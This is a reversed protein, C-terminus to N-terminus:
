EPSWSTTSTCTSWVLSTHGPPGPFSTQKSAIGLLSAAPWLACVPGSGRRPDPPGLSHSHVLPIGAETQRQHRRRAPGPAAWPHQPQKRTVTPAPLQQLIVGDRVARPHPAAIKKQNPFCLCLFTFGSVAPSVPVLYPDLNLSWGPM